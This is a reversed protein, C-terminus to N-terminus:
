RTTRGVVGMVDTKVTQLFRTDTGSVWQAGKLYNAETKLDVKKLDGTFKVVARVRYNQTVEGAKWWTHVWSTRIYGNEKSIMELDFKRALVDVVMEWARDGPIGDRVEISAWGPEIAEFSEPKSACGAMAIIVLALAMGRSFNKM